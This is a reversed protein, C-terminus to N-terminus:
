VAVSLSPSCPAVMLLFEARPKCLLLLFLVAYPRICTSVDVSTLPLCLTQGSCWRVLPSPHQASVLSREHISAPTATSFVRLHLLICRAANEAQLRSIEADATTNRTRDTDLDIAVQMVAQMEAIQSTLWVVERELKESHLRHHTIQKEAETRTEQQKAQYPTTM